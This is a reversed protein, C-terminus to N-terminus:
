KPRTVQKLEAQTFDYANPGFKAVKLKARELDYELSKLQHAVKPSPELNKLRDLANQAKLVLAGYTRDTPNRTTRERMVARQTEVFCNWCINGMFGSAKSQRRQTPEYPKLQNCEKCLRM